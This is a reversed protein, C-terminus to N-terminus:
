VFVARPTWNPKTESGSNQMGYVSGFIDSLGSANHLLRLRKWRSEFSLWSFCCTSIAPSKWARLQLQDLVSNGFSDGSSRIKKKESVRFLLPGYSRETTINVPSVGDKLQLKGAVDSVGEKEYASRSAESFM